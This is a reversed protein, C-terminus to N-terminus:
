QLLIQLVIPKQSLHQFPVVLQSQDCFESGIKHDQPSLYIVKRISMHVSELNAGSCWDLFASLSTSLLESPIWPIQFTSVMLKRSNLAIQNFDDTQYAASQFCDASTNKRVLQFQSITFWKCTSLIQITFIMRFVILWVRCNLSYDM